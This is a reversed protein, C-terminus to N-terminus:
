QHAVLAECCKETWLLAQMQINHSEDLEYNFEQNIINKGSNFM